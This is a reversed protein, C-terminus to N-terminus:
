KVVGKIGLEESLQDSVAIKMRTSNGINNAWVVVLVGAVHHGYHILAMGSSCILLGELSEILVTKNIKM